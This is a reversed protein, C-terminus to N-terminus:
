TTYSTVTNILTAKIAFNQVVDYLPKPTIKLAAIKGGANIEVVDYKVLPLEVILQHKFSHSITPGTLTLKWDIPRRSLLDALEKTQDNARVSFENITLKRRGFLCEARIQGSTPDFAGAPPHTSTSVPTVGPAAGLALALNMTADNAAALVATISVNANSSSAKFFSSVNSDANLATVIKGAIVTPTDGSTINVTVNKPSGSMGAATVTMTLTGTGTATGVVTITEVQQANGQYLQSGPRFGDDAILDNDLEWGWSNLLLGAGYDLSNTGANNDTTVIGAQSNFFYHRGTPFQALAQSVSIGSGVTKKGSGRLKLSATVRATGDGKMSLSQAVMSPFLANYATGLIEVLTRAPLQRSVNGDQLTFIHQFVTP